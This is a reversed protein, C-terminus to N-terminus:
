APTTAEISHLSCPMDNYYLSDKDPLPLTRNLTYRWHNWYSFRGEASTRDQRDTAQQFVLGFDMHCPNWQRRYFYATPKTNTTGEPQSSPHLQLLISLSFACSTSKWNALSRLAERMDYPRRTELVTSALYDGQEQLLLLLLLNVQHVATTNPWPSLRWLKATSSKSNQHVM